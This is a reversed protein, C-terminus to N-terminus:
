RNIELGVWFFFLLCVCLVSELLVLQLVAPFGFCLFSVGSVIKVACSCCGFITRGFWFLNVRYM